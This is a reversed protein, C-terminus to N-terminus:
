ISEFPVHKKVGASLLLLQQACSLPSQRFHKLVIKKNRTKKKVICFSLPMRPRHGFLCLPKRRTGLPLCSACIEIGFHSEENSLEEAGVGLERQGKKVLYELGQSTKPTM